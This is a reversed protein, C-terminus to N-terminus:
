SAQSNEPLSAPEPQGPKSANKEAKEKETTARAIFIQAMTYDLLSNVDRVDLKNLVEVPVSFLLEVQKYLAEIDGDLAAKEYKRVEDFLTRSLPNNEYKKGDVEIVIPKHISKKTSLVLKQEEKKEKEKADPTSEQDKKEDNM